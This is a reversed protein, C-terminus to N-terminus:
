KESSPLGKWGDAEDVLAEGADSMVMVFLPSRFPRSSYSLGRFLGHFRPVTSGQLHLLPGSLLAAETLINDIRSGGDEWGSARDTITTTPIAIKAVADFGLWTHSLYADFAHGSGLHAFLTLDLSLHRTEKAPMLDHVTDNAPLISSPNLKSFPMGVAGFRDRLVVSLEDSNVLSLTSDSLMGMTLGHLTDSHDLDMRRQDVSLILRPTLNRKSSM